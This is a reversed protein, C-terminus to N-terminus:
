QERAPSFFFTSFTFRLFALRLSLEWVSVYYHCFNVKQLVNLMFNVLFKLLCEVFLNDFVVLHGFMYLISELQFGQAYIYAM